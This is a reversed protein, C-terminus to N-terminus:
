QLKTSKLKNMEWLKIYKVFSYWSSFTAWLLGAIGDFILGKFIYLIIFHFPLKIIPSLININKNQAHLQEAARTTYNNFKKFYDDINYYSDHLVHHQLKGIKGTLLVDEHVLSENYNGHKKNFLRLHPKKYENGFRLLKGMFVLSIPVMYGVYEGSDIKKCAEAVIEPTAIEDADIVWVWDNKAQSVAFHKQKGYSEFNHHMVTCGLAKCIEVTNDTSGSDVVLVENCWLMAAITHGISRSANNAIIVASIPTQLTHM